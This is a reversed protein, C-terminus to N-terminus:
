KPTCEAERVAVHDAAATAAAVDGGEATFEGPGLGWRDHRFFAGHTIRITGVPRGDRARVEFLLVAGHCNALAQVWGDVALEVRGDREARQLKYGVIQFYGSPATYTAASAALSLGLLAALGPVRARRAARRSDSSSM